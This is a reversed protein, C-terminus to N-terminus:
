LFAQSSGVMCEWDVAVLELSYSLGDVSWDYGPQWQIDVLWIQFSGPSKWRMRIPLSSTLLPGGM